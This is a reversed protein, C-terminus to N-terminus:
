RGRVGDSSRCFIRTQQAILLSACILLFSMPIGVYLLALDVRSPSQVIRELTFAVLVPAGSMALFSTVTTKISIVLGRKNSPFVLTIFAYLSSTIASVAITWIVFSLYAFLETKVSLILIGLLGFGASITVVKSAGVPGDRRVAYDTAAGGVVAGVLGSVGIAIGFQVNATADPVAYLRILLRPGWTFIATDITMACIAAAVIGILIIVHTRGLKSVEGSTVVVAQKQRAPENLISVLFLLLLSPIASAIFVMRWDDLNQFMSIADFTGDRSAALLWGGSIYALSFGVVIGATFVSSAIGRRDRAFGDGILSISIPIIGAEGIGVFVRALFLGDASPTLGCAVTAVSWLLVCAALLRVRHVRDALLGLPIACLAYAFGFPVGQLYSAQLDTLNFDLAIPTILVHIIMRQTYGIAPVFFLTLLLVITQLKGSHRNPDAGQSLLNRIM